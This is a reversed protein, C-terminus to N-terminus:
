LPSARRVLRRVKVFRRSIVLGALGGVTAKPHSPLKTVRRRLKPDRSRKSWTFALHQAKANSAPVCLRRLTRGHSDLGCCRKPQALHVGMLSESYGSLESWTREVMKTLLMGRMSSASWDDAEWVCGSLALEKCSWSWTSAGSEACM